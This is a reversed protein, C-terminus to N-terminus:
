VVSKRDSPRRARPPQLVESLVIAQALVQPTLREPLPTTKELNVGSGETESIKQKKGGSKWYAEAEETEAYLRENRGQESSPKVVAPTEPHISWEQSSETGQTFWEEDFFIEEIDFFEPSRGAPSVGKGKVLSASRNQAAQLPKTSRTPENASSPWNGVAQRKATVPQGSRSSQTPITRPPQMMPKSPQVMPRAPQPTQQPKMPQGIQKHGTHIVPRDGSQAEKNRKEYHKILAGAIVIIVSILPGLEM